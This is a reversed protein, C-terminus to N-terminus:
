KNPLGIMTRYERLAGEYMELEGVLRAATEKPAKAGEAQCGPVFHILTDIQMVLKKPRQAASDAYASPNMRSRGRQLFGQAAGCLAALRQGAQHLRASDRGANYVHEVGDKLQAVGRGATKLGLRYRAQEPSEVVTPTTDRHASDTHVSEPVAPVPQQARATSAFVVTIGIVFRRM